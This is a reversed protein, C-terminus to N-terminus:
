KGFLVSSYLRNIGVFYFAIIQVSNYVISDISNIDSKNGSILNARSRNLKARSISSWAGSWCNM